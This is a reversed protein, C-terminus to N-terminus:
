KEPILFQHGADLWMRIRDATISEVHGDAFFYNSRGPVVDGSNAFRDPQIGSPLETARRWALSQPNDLWSQPKIIGSGPVGASTSAPLIAIAKSLSVCDSIRECHLERGTSSTINTSFYPNLVFSSNYRNPFMQMYELREKRSVDAPSVLCDQLDGYNWLRKIWADHPDVKNHVAPFKIPKGQHARAYALWAFGIQRMSERDEHEEALSRLRMVAPLLLALLIAIIAVVVLLEVLTFGTRALSNRM